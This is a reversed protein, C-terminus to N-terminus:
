YCLENADCERLFWADLLMEYVEQPPTTHLYLLANEIEEDNYEYYDILMEHPIGETLLEVLYADVMM